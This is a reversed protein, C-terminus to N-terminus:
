KGFEKYPFHQRTGIRPRIKDLFLECEYEFKCEIAHVIFDAVQIGEFKHSKVLKVQLNLEYKRMEFWAIHKIYEDINFGNKVAQNREDIYFSVKDGSGLKKITPKVIYSVLYNYLINQNNLLVKDIKTLDVTIYRIVFYSKIIKRIVYERIIVNSNAAKVEGRSTAVNPFMRKVQGTIRKMNRILKQHDASNIEVAAITFYRGDTGFNGSEDIYVFKNSM